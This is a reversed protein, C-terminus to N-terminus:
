RGDEQHTLSLATCGWTQRQSAIRLTKRLISRILDQGGVFAERSRYARYLLSITALRPLLLRLTAGQGQFPRAQARSAGALDILYLQGEDSCFIHSLYLGSVHGTAHFRRIFDALRRIFDRRAEVSAHTAGLCAPLRLELSQSHHIEETMLFSKREFLHGWQQGWAVVRPVGVGAATLDEIAKRNPPRLCARPLAM